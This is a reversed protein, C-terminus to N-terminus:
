RQKIGKLDTCLLLLSFYGSFKSEESTKHLQDQALLSKCQLGILGIKLQVNTIKTAQLLYVFNQNMTDQSHSTYNGEFDIM